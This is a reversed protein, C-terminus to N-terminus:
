LDTHGLHALVLLFHGLTHKVLLNRVGKAVGSAWIPTSSGPVFRRVLAGVPRLRVTRVFFIDDNDLPALGLNDGAFIGIFAVFLYSRSVTEKKNIIYSGVYIDSNIDEIEPDKEGYNIRKLPADVVSILNFNYVAEEKKRKELSGIEYNQSKM